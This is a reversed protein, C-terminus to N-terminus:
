VVGDLARLRERLQQVGPEHAWPLLDRVVKRLAGLTPAIGMAAAGDLAADAARVAGHVEGQLALARAYSTRVSNLMRPQGQMAVLAGELLDRADRGRGLKVLASGREGLMRDPDFPDYRPRRVSRDDGLAALVSDARDLARLCGAEDGALALAEAELAHIWARTRPTADRERGRLLRLREAPRERYSPQLSASAMIFAALARDGAEAAAKLGSRFYATVDTPRELDWMLWGATAATEAAISFLQRRQNPALSGELLRM